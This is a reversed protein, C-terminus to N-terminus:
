RLREVATHRQLCARSCPSVGARACSMSLFKSRRLHAYGEHGAKNNLRATGWSNNVNLAECWRMAQGGVHVTAYGPVAPQPWILNARAATAPACGPTCASCAQAYLCGSPGGKMTHTTSAASCHMTSVSLPGSTHFRQQCAITHTHPATHQAAPLHKPISCQTLCVEGHNCCRPRNTCCCLERATPAGDHRQARAACLLLLLQLTLSLCHTHLLRPTTASTTSHSM